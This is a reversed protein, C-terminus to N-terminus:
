ELLSEENKVEKKVAPIKSAELPTFGFKAEYVSITKQAKELVTLWKSVVEYVQGKDGTEQTVYGEDILKKQAEDAMMVAFCYQRLGVLFSGNLYGMSQLYKCQDNWLKQVRPPWGAPCKPMYVGSYQQISISEAEKSPEYTGQM